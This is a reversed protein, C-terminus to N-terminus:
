IIGLEDAKTQAEKWWNPQQSYRIYGGVEDPFCRRLKELNTEDALCIAEMIAKRFSGMMHYQWEIIAQEEANM